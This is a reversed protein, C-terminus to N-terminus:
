ISPSSFAMGIATWNCIFKTISPGTSTILLSAGRYFRSFPPREIVNWDYVTASFSPAFGARIDSDGLLTFGFTIEPQRSFIVPFLIDSRAEGAGNITFVGSVAANDAATSRIDSMRLSDSRFSKKFNEISM